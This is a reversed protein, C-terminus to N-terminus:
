SWESRSAFVATDSQNSFSVAGVFSFSAQPFIRKM